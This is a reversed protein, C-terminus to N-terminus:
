PSALGRARRLQARARRARVDRPNERIATDLLDLAEGRADGYCLALEWGRPPEMTGDPRMVLLALIRPEKRRAHRLGALADVVLASAVADNGSVYALGGTAFTALSRADPNKPHDALVRRAEAQVFQFDERGLRHGPRRSVDLREHAAALAPAAPGPKEAIPPAPAAPTPPAHIAPSSPVATPAVTPAATPVPTPVASPAATPASKPIPAAAPAVRAADRARGALVFGVVAVAAAGAG